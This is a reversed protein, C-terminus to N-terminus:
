RLHRFEGAGRRAGTREDAAHDMASRPLPARPRGAQQLPARDVCVLLAPTEASVSYVSTAAMGRREGAESTTVISGGSALRRMGRKFQDADAIM